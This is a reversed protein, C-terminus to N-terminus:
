GEKIIPSQTNQLMANIEPFQYEFKGFFSLALCNLETLKFTIWSNFIDYKKGILLRFGGLLNHVGSFLSYLYPIYIRGFYIRFSRALSYKIQNTEIMKELIKRDTNRKRNLSAIKIGEYVSSVPLGWFETDFIKYRTPTLYERSITLKIFRSICYEFHTPFFKGKLLIGFTLEGSKEFEYWQFGFKQRTLKKYGYQELILQVVSFSEDTLLLDLDGIKRHLKGNLAAVLVSGIVRYDTKSDDIEKIVSLASKVQDTNYFNKSAVM